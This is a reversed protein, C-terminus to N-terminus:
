QIEVDIVKREVTKKPISILLVGNKLDAKIKEKECNDPLDIRTQYSSYNQRTWSSKDGGENQDDQKHEGKIVLMDDEVYVKLDEKSLGPVDFRMKIENEADQIDWPSRINWATGTRTPFAMSDEFIRDMTDLMQRMTRMPSLPDLLGFPSITTSSPRREVSGNASAKGQNSSVQVDVSTDKEAQARVVPLRSRTRSPPFFACCPPRVSKTSPKSINNSLLPSSSIGSTTCAM